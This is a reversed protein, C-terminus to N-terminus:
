SRWGKKKKLKKIGQRVEKETIIIKEQEEGKMIIEKMMDEVKRKIVQEKDDWKPKEFLEEYFSRYIEIVEETDFTIKGEKNKM